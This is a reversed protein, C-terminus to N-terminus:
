FIAFNAAINVGAQITINPSNSIIDGSWGVFDFGNRALARM